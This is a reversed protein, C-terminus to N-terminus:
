RSCYLTLATRARAASKLRMVGQIFEDFSVSGGRDLDLMEFLEDSDQVPVEGRLNPLGQKRAALGLERPKRM